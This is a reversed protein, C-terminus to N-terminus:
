MPWIITHLVRHTRSFRFCMHTRQILRFALCSYSVFSFMDRSDPHIAYVIYYTNVAIANLEFLAENPLFVRISHAVFNFKRSFVYANCISYLLALWNTLLFVIVESIYILCVKETGHNGVMAGDGGLPEDPHPTHPTLTCVWVISFMTISISHIQALPFFVTSFTRKRRKDIRVLYFPFWLPLQFSSKYKRERERERVIITNNFLFHFIWIVIHTEADHM